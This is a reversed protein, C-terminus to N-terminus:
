SAQGLQELIAVLDIDRTPPVSRLNLEVWDGALRGVVAPTANALRELLGSATGSRPRIFVSWGPIEWGDDPTTLSAKSHRAEATAIFDLAALQPALREARNRLNEASVRLLRVSLPEFDQEAPASGSAELNADLTAELAASTSLSLPWAARLPHAELQEILRASGLAIGCRPGGVLKEGRVFCLDAGARLAEAASTLGDLGEISVPTLSGSGLDILLPLQHRRAVSGLTAWDPFSYPPRMRFSSPAIGLLLKPGHESPQQISAAAEFQATTAQNAAGIERLKAHACRALAPLAVGDIDLVQGRAILVTGDAALSALATALAGAVSSFLAASEAGALKAALSAARQRSSSLPNGPEATARQAAARRAAALQGAAFQGAAFQAATQDSPPTEGLPEYFVAGTANIAAMDVPSDHAAIWSAVRAALDAPAPADATAAHLDARVRNLFRGVDAALQQPQVRAALARLPPSEMLEAVSPWGRFMPNSM